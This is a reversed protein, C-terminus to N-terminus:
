YLHKESTLQVSNYWDINIAILLGCPLSVFRGRPGLLMNHDEVKRNHSDWKREMFAPIDRWAFGDHIDNIVTDETMLLRPISKKLSCYPMIKTPTRQSACRPMQKVTYLVGSCAEQRCQPNTLKSLETPDHWKWCDPCLFFYTIHADLNVGLRRELTPLTLALNELGEIPNLPDQLTIMTSQQAILSNQSQVHTASGFAANSFVHIYANRIAPHEDFALPIDQPPEPQNDLDELVAFLREQPVFNPDDEIVVLEEENNSTNDENESDSSSM